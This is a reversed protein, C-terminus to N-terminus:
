EYHEEKYIDKIDMEPWGLSRKIANGGEAAEVCERKSKGYTTVHIRSHVADWTVIIVQNKDYKRAIERAASIPIGKYEKESM